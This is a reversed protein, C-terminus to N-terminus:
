DSKRSIDVADISTLPKGKKSTERKLQKEKQHAQHIEDMRQKALRRIERLCRRSYVHNRVSNSLEFKENAKFYELYAQVLQDHTDLDM